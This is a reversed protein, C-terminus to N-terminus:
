VNKQTHRCSIQPYKGIPVHETKYVQKRICSVAHDVLRLQIAPGKPRECAIFVTLASLGESSICIYANLLNVNM